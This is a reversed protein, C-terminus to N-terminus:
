LFPLDSRKLEQGCRRRTEENRERISVVYDGFEIEAKRGKRRLERFSQRFAPYTYTESSAILDRTRALWYTVRDFRAYCDPKTVGREPPPLDLGVPYETSALSYQGM